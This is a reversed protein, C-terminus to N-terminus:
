EPLWFDDERHHLRVPHGEPVLSGIQPPLSELRFVPPFVDVIRGVARLLGKPPPPKQRGDLIPIDLPHAFIRVGTGRAIRLLSGAHAADARTIIVRRLRIEGKRDMALIFSATGVPGPDILTDGDTERVLYISERALNPVELRFIHATLRRM